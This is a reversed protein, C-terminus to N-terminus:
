EMVCFLMPIMLPCVGIGFSFKWSRNQNPGIERFAGIRIQPGLMAELDAGIYWKKAPFDPLKVYSYPSWSYMILGHMTLMAFYPHPSFGLKLAGGNVGLEPLLHISPKKGYYEQYPSFVTNFGLGFGSVSLRLPYSWMIDLLPIYQPNSIKGEYTRQSTQALAKQESDINSHYITIISTDDVFIFRNREMTTAGGKIAAKDNLQPTRTVRTTVITDTHTSDIWVYPVIVTKPFSNEASM